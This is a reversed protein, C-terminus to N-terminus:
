RCDGILCFGHWLILGVLVMLFLSWIGRCFVKWSDFRSVCAMHWIGWICWICLGYGVVFHLGIYSFNLIPNLRRFDPHNTKVAAM